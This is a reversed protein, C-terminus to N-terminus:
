LGDTGACSTSCYVYCYPVGQFIFLLNIINTKVLSDKFMSNGTEPYHLIYLLGSNVCRNKCKSCVRHIIFHYKVFFTIINSKIHSHNISKPRSKPCSGDHLLCMLCRLVLRRCGQEWRSVCLIMFKFFLGWLYLQRDSSRAMTVRTQINALTLLDNESRGREYSPYVNQCTLLRDM